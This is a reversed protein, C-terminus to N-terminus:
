PAVKEKKPLLKLNATKCTIFNKKNANVINM